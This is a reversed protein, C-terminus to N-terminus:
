SNIKIKILKLLAKNFAEAHSEMPLHGAGAIWEIQIDPRISRYQDLVTPPVWTDQDGWIAAVPFPLGSLNEVPINKGTRIQDTLSRATGQIQLPQAYSALQEATPPQGFAGALATQLQAPRRLYYNFALQTWRDLPPYKMLKSTFVPINNLLAADVLILQATRDPRADAMALATGGGMSHGVITWKDQVTEASWREDDLYDLLAWLWQSRSGQSHDLGKLRTSYGFGPLDAAVTTYGAATLASIQNQWNATSGGFGHILLVKGIPETAEWVQYHLDVGEVLFHESNEFPLMPMAVSSYDLPILFPVIQLLILLGAVFVLLTKATKQIVKLVKKAM